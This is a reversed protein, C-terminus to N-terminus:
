CNGTSDILIQSGPQPQDGLGLKQRFLRLRQEQYRRSYGSLLVDLSEPATLLPKLARGLRDLNWLGIRGQNELDYRGEDDSHNPTFHSSYQSSPNGILIRDLKESFESVSIKFDFRPTKERKREVL